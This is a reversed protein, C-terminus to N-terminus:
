SQALQHVLEACEAAQKVDHVRLLGAGNMLAVTNLVTTGNLAEEPTVGLTKQITSKRSVGAMIPCDLIHFRDLERILKLNQAPTKGFGFGPDVIVDNVGLARLKSVKGALLKIIDRTVDDYNTNQQMTQPTGPMHMLIYPVNFEAATEFMAEDGDGGSVDNIIHAGAEIAARAVDARFTDVSIVAEPFRKAVANVAPLLRNLEEGATIEGAGPRTSYAGIDLCFAGENLHKEAHQLVANEGSLRGGDYFSDPTVNLIGMILAPSTHFLKGGANISHKVTFIRDQAGIEFGM